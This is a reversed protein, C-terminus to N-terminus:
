KLKRKIERQIKKAEKLTNFYGVRVRNWAGRKRKIYVQTIFANYGLKLLLNKQNEAIKKNKWSSIQVIFKKGDTFITRTVSRESDSNYNYKKPQIKSDTPKKESKELKSLDNKESSKKLKVIDTYKNKKVYDYKKNEKEKGPLPLARVTEKKNKGISSVLSDTRSKSPTKKEVTNQSNSLEGDKRLLSQLRSIYESTTTDEPKVGTKELKDNLYEEVKNTLLAVLPDEEVPKSFVDGSGTMGRAYNEGVLKGKKDYYLVGIMNFKDTIGNVVYQSKTRYIKEPVREVSMPNKLVELAWFIYQKERNRISTTDLYVTRASDTYVEM